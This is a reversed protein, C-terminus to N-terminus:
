PTDETPADGFSRLGDEDTASDLWRHRMLKYLDDPSTVMQGVDRNWPSLSFNFASHTDRTTMSSLPIRMFIGKDMYPNSVTGPSTTDNGNTRTYWAGFEVGSKFTRSLEFRVGNDRALFRGARVTATVGELMPLKYHMSAIATVTKYQQFGTGKYDRQRVGDVAVDWALRGGSHLYLAQMGVGGFMEEYLGASARIYTRKAPHWYKNILLSDLKVKAANRYEATDSRVHQLKSNSPQTVDSINEVLSGIVSGKLWWANGLNAQAGLSLGIDYKFAGSPDNLYTSLYPTLSLHSQGFRSATLSLINRSVATEQNVLATISDDLDNARAAESIGRPDAYSINVARALDARTATGAFYRQLVTADDFSWTMGDVGMTQWTIEVRETELPAYAMVIRATRGVGRSAYRYRDSAVTIALTGNRWAATVNRLGEAQLNYLLSTRWLTDNQWQQLTPRPGSHAWAGDKFPGVEDSKPIFERQQLPLSLSVNYINQNHQRGAQLTLPGWSYELAAHWNGTSRTNLGTQKAKPDLQYKNKDYEAVVRWSPLDHLGLRIGGYAGSIRKRGYGVTVDATGYGFDLRKTAAIFESNFLKTGQVDDIGVSVEPLWYGWANEPLLRLKFGASKDKFDGYKEGLGKDPVGHIRTYRGSLQLFPLAQLTIYPASYPRAYSFGATLLGDEEMRADPMHILGSLGLSSPQAWAIAWACSFFLAGLVRQIFQKRPASAGRLISFGLM